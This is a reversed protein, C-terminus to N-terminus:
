FNQPLATTIDQKIWRLNNWQDGGRQVAGNM